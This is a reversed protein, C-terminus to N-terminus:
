LYGAASRAKLRALEAHPDKAPKRGLALCSVSSSPLGLMQACKHPAYNRHHPSRMPVIAKLGRPNITTTDTVTTALIM